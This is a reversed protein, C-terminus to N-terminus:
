LTVTKTWLIGPERELRRAVDGPVPSDVNLIALATGGSRDRGVSMFAINIKEEGMLTGIKGIIGPTDNNSVLFLPGEPLADCDWADVRVLRPHKEGFITGAVTRTKENGEVSVSVLNLYGETLLSTQEVVDVGHERAFHTANVFNVPRDTVHKLFGQLLALTLYKRESAGFLDGAYSLTIRKV